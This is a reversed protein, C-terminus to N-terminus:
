LSRRSWSLAPSDPAFSSSPRSSGGTGSTVSRILASLAECVTSAAGSRAFNCLFAVASTGTVALILLRSTSSVGGAPSGFASGVLSGSGIM